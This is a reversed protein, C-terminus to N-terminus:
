VSSDHVLEATTASSTSSASMTKWRAAATPTSSITLLGTRVMSVLTRQVSTTSAFALLFPLGTRTAEVLSTYPLDDTSGKRSSPSRSRPGVVVPRQDYAHELAISSNM